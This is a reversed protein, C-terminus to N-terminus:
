EMEEGSISISIFSSFSCFVQFWNVFVRERACELEKQKVIKGILVDDFLSWRDCCFFYTYCSSFLLFFSNCGNDVNKKMLTYTNYAFSEKHWVCMQPNFQFCKIGNHPIVKENAISRKWYSQSFGLLVRVRHPPTTHTSAALSWREHTHEFAEM